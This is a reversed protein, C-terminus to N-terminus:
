RQPHEDLWRQVEATDEPFAEGAEQSSRLADRALDRARNRDRSRGEIRWLIRALVFDIAHSMQERGRANMM